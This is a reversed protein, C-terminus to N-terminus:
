CRSSRKRCYGRCQTQVGGFRTVTRCPCRAWARAVRPLQLVGSHCPSAILSGAGARGSLGGGPLRPDPTPKGIAGQCVINAEVIPRHCGSLLIKDCRSPLPSATLFATLMKRMALSRALGAVYSDDLLYLVTGKCFAWPSTGGTVGVDSRVWRADL